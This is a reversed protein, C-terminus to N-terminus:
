AKAKERTRYLIAAVLATIVLFAIMVGFDDGVASADDFEIAVAAVKVLFGIGLLSLPVLSRKYRNRGSLYWVIGIVAFVIIVIDDAKDLWEKESAVLEFLGVSTVSLYGIALLNNGRNTSDRITEPEM